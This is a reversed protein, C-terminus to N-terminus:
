MWRVHESVESRCPSSKLNHTGIFLMRLAGQVEPEVVGWGPVPIPHGLEPLRVASVTNGAVVLGEVGQRLLEQAIELHFTRVMKPRKSGCPLRATDGLYIFDEQPLLRRM